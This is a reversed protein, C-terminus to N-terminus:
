EKNYLKEVSKALDSIREELEAVIPVDGLAYKVKDITDLLKKKNKKVTDLKNWDLLLRLDRGNFVLSTYGHNNKIVRCSKCTLPVPTAKMVSEPDNMDEAVQVYMPGAGLFRTGVFERFEGNNEFPVYGVIEM